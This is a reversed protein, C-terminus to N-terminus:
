HRVLNAFLITGSYLLLYFIGNVSNDCPALEKYAAVSASELMEELEEIVPEKGASKIM